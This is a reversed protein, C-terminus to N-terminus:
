PELQLKLFAAALQWDRKVTAQSIELIEGTEAVSLGLFFRYEFVSARRADVAALQDLGRGVAVLTDQRARSAAEADGLEVRRLGGGRKQAGQRQAYDILIHRMAKAAVAFFHRLDTWDFRSRDVLKLFSEHVLSTTDLTDNGSWRRRQRRALAVLEDYVEDFLTGLAGEDGARIAELAQNVVM